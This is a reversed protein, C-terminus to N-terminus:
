AGPALLGGALLHPAAQSRHTLRTRVGSPLGRWAALATAPNDGPGWPRPRHAQTPLKEVITDAVVLHQGPSVMPAYLELEALVHEHTHNSDLIVMVSEAESVQAAVSDVVSADISSGEILTILRSLPHDEIAKRNHPRIDVDIGIVRGKGVVHLITASLILLRGAGRRDRRGPRAPLGM